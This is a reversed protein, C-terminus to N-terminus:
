GVVVADTRTRAARLSWLGTVIVLTHVALWPVYVLVPYGSSIM